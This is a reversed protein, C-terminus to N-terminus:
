KQRKVDEIFKYPIAVGAVYNDGSTIGPIRWKIVITDEIESNYDIIYGLQSDLTKKDNIQFKEAIDKDWVEEDRKGIYDERCRNFARCYEDNLMRMTGNNSKYWFPFPFSLSLSNSMILASDFDRITKNLSDIKKYLDIVERRVDQIDNRQSNIVNKYENEKSIKNVKYFNFIVGALTVILGGVVALIGTGM